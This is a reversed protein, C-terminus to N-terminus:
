TIDPAEDHHTLGVVDRDTDGFLLEGIQALQEQTCTSIYDHLRGALRMAEFPISTVENIRM